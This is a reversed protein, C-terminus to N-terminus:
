GDRDQSTHWVVLIEIVDGRIHYRVVFDYEPNILDRVNSFKTEIGMKPFVKLNDVLKHINTIVESAKEPNEKRIYNTSSFLTMRARSTWELRM